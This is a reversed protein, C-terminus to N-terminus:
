IFWFVIFMIFLSIFFSLAFKHILKRFFLFNFILFAVIWVFLDILIKPIPILKAKDSIFSLDLYRYGRLQSIISSVLDVKGVSIAFSIKDSNKDSDTAVINFDYKGDKVTMPLSITVRSITKLTLSPPITLASEKITTYPCLKELGSVDMCKLTLIINTEGKNVFVIDVSREANNSMILDYSKGGRENEMTWTQNQTSPTIAPAGGDTPSTTSSTTTFSSTSSNENSASDTAYVTLNYAGYATVTASASSNCTFSINENLGDIGGVSNFISYKCTATNTDSASANFSITQSGATPTISNLVLSPYITDTKLTYNGSQSFASNGIETTNCWVTWRYVGDTLNQIFSNVIDETISTDTQNLHWEGSWNGYFKCTNVTQTSHSPTYNFYINTNNNLWQNNSPYNLIIIPNDINVSLTYNSDAWSSRSDNNYVLCNWTYNDTRPFTLSFTTSNSVNIFSNIITNNVVGTSNWLYLTANALQVEDTANCQFTTTSSVFTNNIPLVLSVVPYQNYLVSIDSYQLLGITDSHFLLPISCNTSSLSCGTCNCNGSGLATNFFSALNSTKNNSYNFAGTINWEYAGDVTGVELYPNSPIKRLNYVDFTSGNVLSVPDGSVFLSTTNGDIGLYAYDKGLFLSSNMGTYTGNRYFEYIKPIAVRNSILLKDTLTNYYIGEPQTISYTATDFSVGTYTGNMWFIYVEDHAPDIIFFHTVNSTLDYPYINSISANIDYFEIYTGNMWYKYVGKTTYDTIWFYTNNNMIGRCNDHVVNLAFSVGIYTGSQWYQYVTDSVYDCVWLYTNNTTIGRPYTNASGRYFTTENYFTTNAFGSLNLFASTVNASKPISINRTINNLGMDWFMAEEYVRHGAAGFNEFSRLIDWSNGNYCSWNVITHSGSFDRAYIQFQVPDKFCGNLSLNVKANNDKVQWLGGVSTSPKSYNIYAYEEGVAPYSYTDWNGDRWVIGDGTFMGSYSGTSLGGCTTSINAFEQYCYIRMSETFTLNEATLSNTFTTIQIATVLILFLISIIGICM